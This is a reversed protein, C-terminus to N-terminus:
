VISLSVSKNTIMPVAKDPSVNVPSVFTYVPHLTEVIMEPYLVFNLIYDATDQILKIYQIRVEPVILSKIIEVPEVSIVSTSLTKLLSCIPYTDFYNQLYNNFNAINVRSLPVMPLEQRGM